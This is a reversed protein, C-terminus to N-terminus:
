VVCMHDNVVVWDDVRLDGEDLVPTDSEVVEILQQPPVLTVQLNFKVIHVRNSSGTKSRSCVPMDEWVQMVHLNVDVLRHEVVRAKPRLDPVTLYEVKYFADKLVCVIHKAGAQDISVQVIHRIAEKIILDLRERKFDRLQVFITSEVEIPAQCCLRLDVVVLQVKGYIGIGSRFHRSAHQGLVFVVVIELVVVFVLVHM